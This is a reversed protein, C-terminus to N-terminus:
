RGLRATREREKFELNCLKLAGNAMTGRRRARDSFRHLGEGQSGPSPGAATSCVIPLNGSSRSLDNCACVSKALRVNEEITFSRRAGIVYNYSVYNQWIGHAGPASCATQSYVFPLKASTGLPPAEVQLASM